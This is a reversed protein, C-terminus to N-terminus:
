TRHSRATRPEPRRRASPSADKDIEAGARDTERIRERTRRGPSRAPLQRPSPLALKTWNSPSHARAAAALRALRPQRSPAAASSASGRRRGRYIRSPKPVPSPPGLPGSARRAAVPSWVSKAGWGFRRGCPGLVGERAEVPAPGRRVGLRCNGTRSRLASILAVEVPPCVILEGRESRACGNTPPM